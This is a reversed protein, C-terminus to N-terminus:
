AERTAVPTPQPAPTPTGCAALGLILALGLLGSLLRSVPHNNM